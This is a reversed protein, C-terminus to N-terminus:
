SSYGNINSFYIAIITGIFVTIIGIISGIHIKKKWYIYVLILSFIPALHILTIAIPLNSKSSKHITYFMLYDGMITGIIVAIVAYKLYYQNNTNNIYTILDNRYIISLIFGIITYIFAVIIFYIHLPMGLLAIKGFVTDSSYALAALIGSLIFIM